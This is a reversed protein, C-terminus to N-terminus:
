VYSSLVLIELLIHVIWSLMPTAALNFSSTQKRATTIIYKYIHQTPNPPSRATSWLGERLYIETNTNTYKYIHIHIQIRPKTIHEIGPQTYAKTNTYKSNTVTIKTNHILFALNHGWGWRWLGGRGQGQRRGGGRGRITKHDCKSLPQHWTSPLLVLTSQISPAGSGLALPVGGPVGAPPGVQFRTFSVTETFDWTTWSSIQPPGAQFRLHDLEFDPSVKPRPSIQPPGVQCRLHDLKFYPSVGLRLSILAQFDTPSGQRHDIKVQFGYSGQRPTLNIFHDWIHHFGISKVIFALTVQGGCGRITENFRTFSETKIFDPKSYIYERFNIRLLLRRWQMADPLM